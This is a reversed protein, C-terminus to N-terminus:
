FLLKEFNQNGVSLQFLTSRANVGPESVGALPGYLLLCVYELAVLPDLSNDIIVEHTYFNSYFVISNGDFKYFTLGTNEIIEKSHSDFYSKLLNINSFLYYVIVACNTGKKVADNDSKFDLLTLPEGNM